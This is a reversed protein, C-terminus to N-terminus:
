NNRQKGPAAGKLVRTIEGELDRMVARARDCEEPPRVTRHHDLWACIEEYDGCIERFTADHQLLSQICGVYQPFKKHVYDTM